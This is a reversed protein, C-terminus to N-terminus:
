YFREWSRGSDWNNIDDGGGTLDPDQNAIYDSSNYPGGYIAQGSVMNEGFSWIFALKDRPAAYSFIDFLGTEPDEVEETGNANVTLEDIKGGGRNGPLDSAGEVRYIRFPIPNPFNARSTPWPGPWIQYLNGWPDKAVDMYSTGLKKIVEANLVDSYLAIPLQADTDTLASRGERLLAYLTRTYIQQALTFQDATLPGNVELVGAM